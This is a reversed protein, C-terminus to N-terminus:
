YVERCLDNLVQQLVTTDFSKFDRAHIMHQRGGAITVARSYAGSRSNLVDNGVAILVVQIGHDHIAKAEQHQPHLEILRRGKNCDVGRDCANYGRPKVKCTCQDTDGDNFIIITKHGSTEKELMQRTLYLAYGITTWSRPYRSDRVYKAIKDKSNEFSDMKFAVYSVDSVVVVGVRVNKLHKLVQQMFRKQERWGSSRVTGSGDLIFVISRSETTTQCEVCVTGWPFDEFREPEREKADQGKCVCRGRNVDYYAYDNCIDDKKRSPLDPPIGYTCLVPRRAIAPIDYYGGVLMGATTRPLDACMNDPMGKEWYSQSVATKKKDPSYHNWTRRQQVYLRFPKCEKSPKLEVSPDRGATTRVLPPSVKQMVKKYEDANQFDNYSAAYGNLLVKCSDHLEDFVPSFKGGRVAHHSPFIVFPRLNGSRDKAHLCEFGLTSCVGEMENVTYEFPQGPRSCLFPHLDTPKGYFATGRRIYDLAGHSMKIKIPRPKSGDASDGEESVIKGLVGPRENGVWIFNSSKHYFLAVIWKLQQRDEVVHFNYKKGCADKSFTTHGGLITFCLPGIAIENDECHYTKEYICKTPFGKVVDRVEHPSALECFDLAENRDTTEVEYTVECISKKLVGVGFHFPHVCLGEFSDVAIFDNNIGRDSRHVM